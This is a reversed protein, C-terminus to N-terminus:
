PNNPTFTFTGSLVEPMPGITFDWLPSPTIPYITGPWWYPIQPLALNGGHDCSKESPAVGRGCVPCKWGENV